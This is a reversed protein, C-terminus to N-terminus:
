RNSSQRRRRSLMGFAGVALLSLSSPEPTAVPASTYEVVSPILQGDAGSWEFVLDASGNSLGAFLGVSQGNTFTRTSLDISEAASTFDVSLGLGAENIHSTSQSFTSFYGTHNSTHDTSISVIPATGTGSQWQSAMSKYRLSSLNSSASSIDLTYLSVSNGQLIVDGFRSDGTTNDVKLVVSGPAADTLATDWSFLHTAPQVGASQVSATQVTAPSARRASSSLSLSRTSASSTV